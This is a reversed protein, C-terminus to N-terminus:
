REVLSKGKDLRTPRRQAGSLPALLLQQLTKRRSAAKRQACELNALSEIMLQSYIGALHEQRHAVAWSRAAHLGVILTQGSNRPRQHCQDPRSMNHSPM